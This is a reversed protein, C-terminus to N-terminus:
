MGPLVHGQGVVGRLYQVACHQVHGYMDTCAMSGRMRQVGGAGAWGLGTWSLGAGAGRKRGRDEGATLM